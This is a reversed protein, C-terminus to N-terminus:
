GVEPWERCTARYPGEGPVLEEWEAATLNRGALRCAADVWEDPDLGFGVIENSSVVWGRVGDEGETPGQAEAAGGSGLRGVRERRLTDLLWIDGSETHAVMEDRAFRLMANVGSEFRDIIEVSGHYV